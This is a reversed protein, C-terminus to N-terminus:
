NRRIRTVYGSGSMDQEFRTLATVASSKSNFYGFRVNFRLEDRKNKYESIYANLQQSELESKRRLANEADAFVGVQITYRADGASATDPIQMETAAVAAASHVHDTEVAVRGESNAQKLVDSSVKLSALQLHTDGQGAAPLDVGSAEIHNTTQNIVSEVDGDTVTAQTGPQAYGDIATAVPDPSDVDIYAGPLQQEPTYPQYEVTDAHAPKPLALAMTKNFEMGSGSDAKHLGLYYGSCFVVALALALVIGAKCLSQQDLLVPAM